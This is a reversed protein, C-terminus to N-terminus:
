ENPVVDKEGEKVKIYPFGSDFYNNMANGMANAVIKLAFTRAGDTMPEMGEPLPKGLTQYLAATISLFVGDTMVMATSHEGRPEFGVMIDSYNAGEWVKDAKEKDCLFEQKVM